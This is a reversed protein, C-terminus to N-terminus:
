RSYQQLILINNSEEDQQWECATPRFRAYNWKQEVKRSKPTYTKM